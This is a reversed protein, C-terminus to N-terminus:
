YWGKWLYNQLYFLWKMGIHSLTVTIGSM